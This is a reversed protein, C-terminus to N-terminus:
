KNVSTFGANFVFSNREEFRDALIKILSRVKLKTCNLETRTQALWNEAEPRKLLAEARDSM